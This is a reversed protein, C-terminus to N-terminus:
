EQIERLAERRRDAPRRDYRRTTKEDVHGTINMITSIDVGADFLLGVGTRRFDHWTTVERLNSARFRKKLIFQTGGYTLPDTSVHGGKYIQTFLYEGSVGRLEVWQTLTELRRGFMEVVRQKDGKGHQIVIEAYGDKTYTLDSMKMSRIEENRMLTGAAVAILAADRVGAPTGDQCADLLSNIEWKELHRGAPVPDANAGKPDPIDIVRHLTREVEEAEPAPLEDYAIIIVRRAWWRVVALTQKVSGPRAGTTQQLAIYEEVLTRTMRRGHLWRMFKGLRAAYYRRTHPSRLSPDRAIELAYRPPAQTTTLTSETM